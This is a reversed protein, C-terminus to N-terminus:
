SYPACSNRRGTDQSGQDTLAWFLGRLYRSNTAGPDQPANIPAQSGNGAGAAWM